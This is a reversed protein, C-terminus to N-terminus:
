ETEGGDEEEFLSTFCDSCINEEDDAAKFKIGCMTCENMM